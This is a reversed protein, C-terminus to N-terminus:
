ATGPPNTTEELFGSSRYQDLEPIYLYGPERGLSRRVIYARLESCKRVHVLGRTFEHSLLGIEPQSGAACDDPTNELQRNAIYATRYLIKLDPLDNIGIRPGPSSPTSSCQSRDASWEIERTASGFDPKEAIWAPRKSIASWPVPFRGLKRHSPQDGEMWTGHLNARAEFDTCGEILADFPEADGLLMGDSVM